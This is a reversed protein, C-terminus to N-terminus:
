DHVYHEQHTYLMRFADERTFEIKRDHSIGEGGEALNISEDEFKTLEAAVLNLCVKKIDAPISAHAYVYALRIARRIRYPYYNAYHVIGKDDETWYDNNRGEVKSAVIDIYSSGDYVEIKTWTKIPRFRAYTRGRDSYDRHRGFRDTAPRYDHYEDAITKGASLWSTRCFADIEEQVEEIKATVTDYTPRTANTWGILAQVKANQATTYSNSLNTTVTISTEASISAIVGEEGDINNDDTILVTMGVVYRRTSPVPIVKQGSNADGDLDQAIDYQIQMFDSVEQVSCYEATM